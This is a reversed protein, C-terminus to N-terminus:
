SPISISLLQYSHSYPLPRLLESRVLTFVAINAGIGIALTLVTTICFIPQKRLGRLSYRIDKLLADFVRFGWVDHSREKLLTHNGFQRKAAYHADDGSMGGRLNEEEQMELHFKMEEDLESDFQNRKFYFLLRRWLEILKRLM